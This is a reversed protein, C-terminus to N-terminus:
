PSTFTFIFLIRVEWFTNGDADVDGEGNSTSAKQAKKSVKTPREDGSNDSAVFSSRRKGM